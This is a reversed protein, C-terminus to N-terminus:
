ENAAKIANLIDLKTMASSVEVDNEVAYALLRPKTWKMTPLETPKEVKAAEERVPAKGAPKREVSDAEVVTKEPPDVLKVLLGKRVRSLISPSRDREPTVKLTGKPVVVAPEGTRLTVNILGRTPNFYSGM